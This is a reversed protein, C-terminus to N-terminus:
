HERMVRMETPRLRQKSSDMAQVAAAAPLVADHLAIHAYQQQKASGAKRKHARRAQCAFNCHLLQELQHINWSLLRAATSTPLVAGTAARQVATQTGYSGLIALLPVTTLHHQLTSAACLLSLDPCTV